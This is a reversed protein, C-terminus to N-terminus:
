PQGIRRILDQFRPDTRLADFPKDWLEGSLRSTREQYAEELWQFALDTKGLATYINVFEYPSVYETKQRERLDEIIKSAGAPDEARALAYGLYGSYPGRNGSLKAAIQSESLAERTRDAADLSRALLWHGFPNNADLEIAQHCAEIAKDYQRARMYIFGILANTILSIPDLERAKMVEEIAQGYRQLCSLLISYGLHASSLSPNLELARRFEEESGAWDWDYLNRVVALSKHAEANASDRDLAKEAFEKAVPFVDRPPSLYLVGLLVYCDAVGAYPAAYDPDTKIAKNFYELSREVGTGKTLFYRGKLYAEYAQPNVRAERMSSGHEASTLRARIQHSIALAIETQLSVIDSLEREYSDTWLHRDSFPDILQVRIRVRRDSVVISGVVVVDVCLERAIEALPKSTRNFQMASTRSIVRLGAIKAIRTILEDTLGDAWHDQNPEGSMNELPLVALSGIKPTAKAIFRYGRRPATEIFKPHETTDGLAHRLRNVAKNLGREFDVFTDAPWIRRRLQDRTVVEGPYELLAALLQFQQEQLKVRSGSKLLERSAFDAEFPGFRVAPRFKRERAM